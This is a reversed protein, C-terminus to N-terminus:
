EQIIPFPCDNNTGQAACILGFTGNTFHGLDMSVYVAGALRLLECSLAFLGLYSFPTQLSYHPQGPIPPLCSVTTASYGSHM